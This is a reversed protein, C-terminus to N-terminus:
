KLSNKTTKLAHGKLTEWNISKYLEDDIEGVCVIENGRMIYVGLSIEENEEGEDDKSYIIREICNSLIINTSKDHGELKGEFFRADSTIM